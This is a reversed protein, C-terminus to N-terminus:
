ISIKRVVAAIRLIVTRQALASCRHIGDTVTESIGCQFLIGAAPSMPKGQHIPYPPLNDVPNIATGPSAPTGSKAQIIDSKSMHLTVPDDRTKNSKLASKDYLVFTYAM